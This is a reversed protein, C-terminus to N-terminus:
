SILKKIEPIYRQAEEEGIKIIQQIIKNDLYKKVRPVMFFKSTDPEMLIDTDNAARRALNLLLIEAGRMVIKSTSFRASEHAYRNYLNVSIVIDAGMNKVIDDPIPNSLGGDALLKGEHRIPQFTFPISISARIAKAINGSSFVFPEGSIIDTAAIQMPIKLDKFQAGNLSKDLFKEIRKGSLLGGKLSLDLAFSIKERQSSTFDAILKEVNPCLAYLAGVWSGISSGAIYDIPIGNEALAKIVGIHAPGRFGGSGLALGITKRKKNEEGFYNM